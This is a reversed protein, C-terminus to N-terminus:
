LSLAVASLIVLGSLGLQAFRTRRQYVLALADTLHYADDISVLSPPLSSAPVKPLLDLTRDQPDVQQRPALRQSDRNLQNMRAFIRAYREQVVSLERTSKPYLTQFDGPSGSPLQPNSIRPTPIHYIVGRWKPEDLTDIPTDTGRTVQLLAALRGPVGERAFTVVQATGGEKDSPKCDWLAILVQSSQAIFAGVLAYGEIRTAEDAGPSISVRGQSVDLAFTAQQLLGRFEARSEETAFDEEYVPQPMPSVAVLPCGLRLAVHAVLRDAGEALSSLLIIPTDPCQERIQDFARGVTDELIPVVEPPLDRHGTVGVVLPLPASDHGPHSAHITTMEPKSEGASFAACENEARKQIGGRGAGACGSWNLRPARGIRSDKIEEGIRLAQELLGIARGVEGLAASATGLSGLATGEGRRDGIERAIKLAQEHYDVARGVQGLRAHADGLNGLANGEGRRDGMARAIALAQEYCRIAQEVQDMDAYALGLNGLAAGEGERDGIERAIKLAQKCYRIARKVQGMDTYALGLNSLAAGEGQRDGIERANDLHQRFYDIAREVEGLDAYAPGVTGLLWGVRNPTMVRRMAEALFPELILLGERVRGHEQLWNSAAGLMDYARDCEGAQFLHHGAELRDYLERSTNAKAEYYNGVRHHTERLLAPDDGFRRAVCQATASHITDHRVLGESIMMLDVQELLSTRRLRKATGDATEAPEGPEGLERELDQCWPRRLLTLRYLMRRARDDLVRDWLEDFLLDDRLTDEVKPLAPEVIETWERKMDEDAPEAAVAWARGKKEEWEYLAHEVLDIAFEVARPHGDLREALRARSPVSLRWLGPFWGMLRFLAGALLPGVPILAQRFDDNRYRCSAVVTLNNTHNAFQQLTEWIAQLAPTRWQGFADPDAPGIDEPGILLSELNDLYV